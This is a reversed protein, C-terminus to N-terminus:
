VLTPLNPRDSIDINREAHNASLVFNLLIRRKEQFDEPAYNLFNHWILYNNLYKTSVGNFNKMFKKMQSHYNNVHQLHYIGSRTEEETKLRKHTMKHKIALMGYSKEGDTVLISGDVIHGDFTKQVGKKTARALNAVKAVSLGNRNVACNVCVKEFTLGRGRDVMGGRHRSRRPMTFTKSNKHNGKYSLPMFTEDAEIIGDLEVSNAMQQLADLVKHRWRFATNRHIGCVQATKRLSYGDMMCDIFKEWTKLNKHTGGAVSNTTATFSKGCDMCRYKQTGDKRKGNRVVHTCGCVPCVRGDSFRLEAVYDRVDNTDTISNRLLKSLVAQQESKTLTNFDNLVSTVNAM